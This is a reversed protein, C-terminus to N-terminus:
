KNREWDRDPDYKGGDRDEEDPYYAREKIELVQSGIKASYTQGIGDGTYIIGSIGMGLSVLYKLFLPVSDDWESVFDALYQKLTDGEVEEDFCYPTLFGVARAMNDFVPGKGRNYNFLFDEQAAFSIRSYQDKTALSEIFAGVTLAVQIDIDGSSFFTIYGNRERSV